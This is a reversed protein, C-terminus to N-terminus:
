DRPTERSPSDSTATGWAPDGAASAYNARRRDINDLFAQPSIAGSVMQEFDAEIEMWQAMLYKVAGQLPEGGLDANELFEAENPLLPVPAAPFSLGTGEPQQAAYRDLNDQRTLFRFFALM